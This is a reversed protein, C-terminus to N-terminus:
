DPLSFGAQKAFKRITNFKQLILEHGAYENNFDATSYHFAATLYTRLDDMERPPTNLYLPPWLPDGVNIYKLFGITEPEPVTAPDMFIYFPLGYYIDFPLPNVGPQRSVSFFEKQLEGPFISNLKKEALGAMISAIYIKKEENNMAEVDMMKIAVTNFGQWSTWGDVVTTNLVPLTNWLSDVLLISPIILGKPLQPILQEKLLTMLAPIPAKSSIHKFNLIQNGFLSYSLSLKIYSYQPVGANNRVEKRAITDNYFSAIGTNQYFQFIAHDAPDAPNDKIIFYNEDEKSPELAKEKKCATALLITALLFYVQLAKTPSFSIAPKM